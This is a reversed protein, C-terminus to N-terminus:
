GSYAEDRQEPKMIRTSEALARSRIELREPAAIAGTGNVM